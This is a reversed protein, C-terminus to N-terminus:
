INDPHVILVSKPPKTYYGGGPVSYKIFNFYLKINGFTGLAGANEAYWIQTVGTNAARLNKIQPIIGIGYVVTDIPDGQEM